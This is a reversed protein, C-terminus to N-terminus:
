VAIATTSPAVAAVLCCATNRYLFTLNSPYFIDMLVQLRHQLGISELFEPLEPLHEEEIERRVTERYLYKELLSSNRREDNPLDGGPSRQDDSTVVVPDIGTAVDDAIRIPIAVCAIRAASYCHHYWPTRWESSSVLM